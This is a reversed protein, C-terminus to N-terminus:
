DTEYHLIEKKIIEVFHVPSFEGDYNYNPADQMFFDMSVDIIDNSYFIGNSQYFKTAIVSSNDTLLKKNYIIAELFRSTFGLAGEQNIDLLCKSMISYELMRRYSMMKDIYYIGDRHVQEIEKAGMIFFLCNQGLSTLHDYAEILKPLRNKARGTFFVDSAKLKTTDYLEIRSEFESFPIMKYKECDGADFSMWYDFLGSEYFYKFRKQTSALDRIAKIHIAHPYNLRLYKLYGEQPYSIFVFCSPHQGALQKKSFYYPYWFKDMFLGDLHTYRIFHGKFSNYAKYLFRVLSSKYDLPYNVVIVDKEKKLDELCISYYGDPNTGLFGKDPYNFIVIRM